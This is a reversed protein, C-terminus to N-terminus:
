FPLEKDAVANNGAVVGKFFGEERAKEILPLMEKTAIDYGFHLAKKIDYFTYSSFKYGEKSYTGHSSLFEEFEKSVGTSTSQTQDTM